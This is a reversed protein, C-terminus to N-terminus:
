IMGFRKKDEESIPHVEVDVEEEIIKDGTVSKQKVKRKEVKQPKDEKIKPVKYWVDEPDDDKIKKGVVIKEEMKNYM